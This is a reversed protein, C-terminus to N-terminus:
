LLKTNENLTEFNLSSDVYMYISVLKNICKSAAVIKIQNGMLIFAEHLFKSINNVSSGTYISMINTFMDSKAVLVNLNVYMKLVYFVNVNTEPHVM